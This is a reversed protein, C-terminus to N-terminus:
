KASRSEYCRIEGLVSHCAAIYGSTWAWQLNYGGCRGDVDLIEGAFYLGDVLKSMMSTEVESVDVGGTTAQAADFSPFGSIDIVFKQSITAIQLLQRDTMREMTQDFAIGTRHLLAGCVKKHFIGGLAESVAEKAYLRRVRRLIGCLKEASLDPVFNVHVSVKKHASLARVAAHSLQFVPIGSINDKNLQLEGEEQQVCTGDVFLSLGAQARVGALGPLEKEKSKLYTLVPLPKIITHGMALALRYGSGDSGTAPAANGGCALIVKDFCYTRQQTTVKFAHDREMLTRVEEETRVDVHLRNLLLRLLNLVSSAQGTAPYVYGDRKETTLLGNEEFFAVAAANDFYSLAAEVFSPHDTDYDDKSLKKNTFNCKGNGTSLLKKGVRPTHEILTVHGGLQAATIAAMMGSAGGGIVGIHM